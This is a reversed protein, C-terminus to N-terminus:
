LQQDHVKEQAPKSVVPEKPETADGNVFSDYILLLVGLFISADAVNFIYFHYGFIHFDFFDAVAGYLFRDTLNGLAGGMIMGLGVSMMWGTSRYLWFGLTILVGSIFTMLLLRGWFGDSALLGFSVGKNWVMVLNFFPTVEVAQGPLMSYFGFGHLLLNKVAQDTVLAVFLVAVGMIQLRYKDM